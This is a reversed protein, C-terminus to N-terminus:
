TLRKELGFTLVDVVYRMFTNRRTPVGVNKIKKEVNYLLKNAESGCRSTLSPWALFLPLVQGRPNCSWKWRDDILGFLPNICLFISSYYM